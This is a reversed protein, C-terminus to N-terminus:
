KEFDDIKLTTDKQINKLAKRGLLLGKDRYLLGDGPSKLTIMNVNLIEGKKIDSKSTISRRLKIKASQTSENISKESSGIVRKAINIEKVLQSLEQEELSGPQDTGKMLKDLTIHKEIVVAGMITAIVSALVGPTHDSFGTAYGYKDKLTKIVNLNVNDFSCPYQSTCQMIILKNKPKNLISIAHDIEDYDAMGTSIIIPKDIKSLKNLLLDNSLDRSAVKYFPCNIRELLEVSPVDCPTCFYIIGKLDCYEKLEKHEQEKLELFIRHEGYTRAFSNPSDYVKNFAESTLESPIDRKQFKVADVGSRIAMDILKKALDISGNHNQGIEGIIFPKFKEGILKGNLSITDKVDLAKYISKNTGDSKYNTFFNNLRTLDQYSDLTLLKDLNRKLGNFDNPLLLIDLEDRKNSRFSPTVHEFDESNLDTEALKRFAGINIIEPVIHSLDKISIYDQSILKDFLLSTTKFDVIPNDATFRIFYDDNNLELYNIASLFRSFVNIIDGRFFKIKHFKCFAEIPDDSKETSTLVYFDDLEKINSVNDIVRKLLPTGNVSILTKGPLRTSSMRAQILGIKKM